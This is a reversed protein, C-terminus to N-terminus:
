GIARTVDSSGIEQCVGIHKCRHCNGDRDTDYKCRVETLEVQVPRVVGYQDCPGFVCKVSGDESNAMLLHCTPCTVQMRLEALIM